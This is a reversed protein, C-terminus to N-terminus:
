REVKGLMTKGTRSIYQDNKAKTNTLQTVKFLTCQMNDERTQIRSSIHYWVAVTQRIDRLFHICVPLGNPQFDSTRRSECDYCKEKQEHEGRAVIAESCGAVAVGFSEKRGM